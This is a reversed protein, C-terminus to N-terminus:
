PLGVCLEAADLLDASQLEATFQEDIEKLGTLLDATRRQIVTFGHWVREDVSAWSSTFQSTNTVPKEAGTFRLEKVCLNM